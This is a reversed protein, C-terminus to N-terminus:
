VIHSVSLASHLARVESAEKVDHVRLVNAGKLLAAMNLATTGNLAEEPRLGLLKYIMSKRSIGVLIPADFISLFELQNLLEYNQEVSKAFGFGPDILIDKVGLNRLREVKESLEQIVDVVINDYAQMSMMTKSDGRSHTLVYPVNLKGLTKFMLADRNGGSIDNIMHAGKDVAMRAVESRFTDVSVIVGPFHKVILSLAGEIRGMEEEESVDDAYPRTSVAGVDIIDAGDLIFRQIRSLLSAEESVRSGEYFSDLTVNVIGMIKPVQFDMLKEGCKITLM